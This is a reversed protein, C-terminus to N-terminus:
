QHILVTYRLVNMADDGRRRTASVVVVYEQPMM